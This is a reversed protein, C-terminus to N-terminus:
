GPVFLKLNHAYDLVLHLLNPVIKDSDRPEYLRDNLDVLLLMVVQWNNQHIAKLYQFNLLPRMPQHPRRVLM